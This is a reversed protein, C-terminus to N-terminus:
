NKKNMLQKIDLAIERITKEKNIDNRIDLDFEDELDFFLNVLGLSSPVVQDISQDLDITEPPIEQTRAILDVVRREVTQEM